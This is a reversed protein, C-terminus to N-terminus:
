QGRSLSGRRSGAIPKDATLPRAAVVYGRAHLFERLGRFLAFSDPYVFFTLAALDPDTAAVIGRFRSGDALAEELTEGRVPWVPVVEWADLAYSFSQRDAPPLADFVQDLPSSRDRVITYRLRFPGIPETQGQVEWRDALQNGLEPLRQRVQALLGQLDIFSVRSHRCEFLLEGAGLPRSVPLYYRLLRRPSQPRPLSEIMRDLAELRQRLSENALRTAALEQQERHVQDAEETLMEQLREAEALEQHLLAQSQDRLHALTELDALRQALLRALHDTEQRLRELERHREALYLLRDAAQEVASPPQRGPEVPLAPLDSPLSRLRAGVLVIIILVIGVLNAVIDLFSDSGFPAGTNRFRRPM